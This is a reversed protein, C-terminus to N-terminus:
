IRVWKFVLYNINKSSLDVIALVTKKRVSHSVRGIRVISIPDLTSDIRVVLVVYPAHEYGPGVEYVAFDAGFKLGSRVIYGKKRLDEYVIYKAKFEPVTNCAYEELDNCQAERGNIIPTLIGNRCLYLAEYLSLIFPGPYEKDPKPKPVAFPKGFFYRFLKNGVNYDLIIAKTGLVIAHTKEINQTTSDM